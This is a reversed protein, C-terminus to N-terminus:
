MEHCARSHLAHRSWTREDCGQTGSSSFMASSWFRRRSRLFNLLWVESAISL